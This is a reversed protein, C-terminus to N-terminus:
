KVEEYKHFWAPYESMVGHKDTLSNHFQLVALPEGGNENQYLGVCKYDTPADTRTYKTGLKFFPQVLRWYKKIYGPAFTTEHGVNSGSLKRVFVVREGVALILWENGYESKYRQGAEFTM